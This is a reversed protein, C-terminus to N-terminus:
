FSCMSDVVGMVLFLLYLGDVFIEGDFFVNM